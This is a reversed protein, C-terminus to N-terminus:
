KCIYDVSIDLEKAFLSANNAINVWHVACGHCM